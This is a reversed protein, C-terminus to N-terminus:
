GASTYLPVSDVYCCDPSLDVKNDWHVQSDLTPDIDWAVSGAEDLYVRNFCMPDALPSFVTGPKIHPKCDYARIEGNDFTLILIQDAAPSVSVIRRRGAAFYEAMPRDFGRALYYAVDKM